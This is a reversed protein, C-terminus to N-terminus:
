RACRLGRRTAASSRSREFRAAPARAHWGPRACGTSTACSSISRARGTATATPTARRAATGSRWWRAARRWRSPRRRRRRSTPRAAATTSTPAPTTPPPRRIRRISSTPTRIARWCRPPPARSSRQRRTARTRRARECPGGGVGFPWGAAPPPRKTPATAVGADRLVWPAQLYARVLQRLLFDESVYQPAARWLADDGGLWYAAVRGQLSSAPLLGSATWATTVLVVASLLGVLLGITTPPRPAAAMTHRECLLARRDAVRPTFM